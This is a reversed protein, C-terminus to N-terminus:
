PRWGEQLQWRTTDLLWPGDGERRWTLGAGGLVDAQRAAELEERKIAEQWDTTGSPFLGQENARAPLYKGYEDRYYSFGPPPPGPQEEYRDNYLAILDKPQIPYADRKTVLLHSYLPLLQYTPVHALLFHWGLILGDMGEGEAIRDGNAIATAAILERLTGKRAGDLSTSFRGERTAKSAGLATLRQLEAIDTETANYRSQPTIAQM